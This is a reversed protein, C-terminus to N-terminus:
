PPIAEETFDDLLLQPYHAKEIFVTTGTWTNKMSKNTNTPDTWNDKITTTEGDVDKITTVREDKLKTPDPGDPSYGPEYLNTRQALHHRIWINGEKTWHDVNRNTTHQHEDHTTPVPASAEATQQFEEEPLYDFITSGTWKEPLQPDGAHKWDDEVLVEKSPDSLFKM